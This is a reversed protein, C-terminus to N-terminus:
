VHLGLIYWHYLVLPIAVATCIPYLLLLWGIPEILEGAEDLVLFTVESMSVIGRNIFDNLRGPTAVVLDCGYALDRVQKKQDAGGYVVVSRLPSEFTLKEAELSIQLALERTPALVVCRPAAPSGVAIPGPGSMAGGLAAAVPLLFACTKGSGTQACCMLDRGDLALPIAHRQIPTPREYHMRRVNRRLFPPLRDEGLSSFEGLPPVTGGGAPGRVEVDIKDYSSFKIGAAGQQGFLESEDRRRTPYSYSGHHRAAAAERQCNAFYEAEVDAKKQVAAAQAQRRFEKRAERSLGSSGHHSRGGGRGGRGGRGDRGSASSSSRGGGPPGKRTARGRGSM